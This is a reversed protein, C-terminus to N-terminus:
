EFSDFITEIEFLQLFLLIRKHFVVIDGKSRQGWNSTQGLHIVNAKFLWWEFHSRSYDGSFIHPQWFNVHMCFILNNGVTILFYYGIKLM